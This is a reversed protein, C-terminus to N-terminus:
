ELEELPAAALKQVVTHAIAEVYEYDFAAAEGHGHVISVYNRYATEIRYWVLDEGEAQPEVRLFCFSEGGIEVQRDLKEYREDLVDVGFDTLALRAGDATEYMVLNHFIEEPAELDPTGRRFAVWWGDLRGTELIYESGVEEGWAELVAENHHSSTWSAHPIYYAAQRPLDEAELLFRRPDLVIVRTDNRPIPTWTASPTLTPFPTVTSGFPDALDETPTPLPTFVQTAAPTQIQPFGAGATEAIATQIANEPPACGVLLIATSILIATTIFLSQDRMRSGKKLIFDPGLYLQGASSTCASIEPQNLRPHMFAVM